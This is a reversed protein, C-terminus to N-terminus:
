IFPIEARMLEMLEKWSPVTLVDERNEHTLDSAGRYWVPFMGANRAGVVDCEYNDGIYWVEDPSLSAKQLALDFIRRNPKRFIYASTAIIFEFSHQPLLGTIREDVVDPSYSINSIVGTRIGSATLFSLFEGIGETPVAPAAANWFLRDVEQHTLPLTIGFSEYLYATFMQNPIELQMLHRTARDFRGLEKNIENATQQIQEATCGYKNESAHDLVAQTGKVGDFAQENALTQGYDFLIMRPKNM